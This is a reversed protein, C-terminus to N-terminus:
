LKIGVDEHDHNGVPQGNKDLINLRGGYANYAIVIWRRRLENELADLYRFHM